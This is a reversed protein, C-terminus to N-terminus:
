DGFIRRTTVVGYMATEGLDHEILALQADGGDIFISINRFELDKYQTRRARRRVEMAARPEPATRGM